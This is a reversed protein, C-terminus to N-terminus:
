CIDCRPNTTQSENKTSTTQSSTLEKNQKALIERVLQIFNWSDLIKIETANKFYIIKISVVMFALDINLNEDAFTEIFKMGHEAAFKEGQETTIKTDTTPSCYINTCSADRPCNTTENSNKTKNAILMRVVDSSAHEAINGLWKQINRFSRWNNPDYVLLIGHAGQYYSTSITGLKEITCNWMQLKIKKGHYEIINSKYDIGITSILTTKITDDSFRLSLFYPFISLLMLWTTCPIYWLRHVM